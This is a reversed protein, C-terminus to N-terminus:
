RPSARLQDLPQALDAPLPAQFTMERGTAPHCFTIQRAHLFMRPLALRQRQPGYVRDGAIPHGIAALHVRIQHTRGTQPRVELLSYSGLHELVHYETAAPRGHPVVAMRKREAPDRAIPAEIRARRQKPHGIVLAWYVKRVTGAKFQARLADRAAPTRAVLLVGSTDRDLRHVVGPYGEEAPWGALDPFRHLLADALTGTAHGHAPHIVLGAPKDLVALEGDEYIVTLALAPTAPGGAKAPTEPAPAVEIVDGAAVRYGARAPVHNVLVEGAAIRRQWTTRSAAGASEALFRDLRQGAAEVGVILREVETVQAETM